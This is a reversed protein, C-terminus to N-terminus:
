KLKLLCKVLDILTFGLDDVHVGTNSDIWKCKFVPVRFKVRDVEWIEETVGLYSITTMVLNNDKSSAFHMSEAELTVGRNQMTSKKDKINTYFSFKNIDYGSWTIVDFNPGRGVM